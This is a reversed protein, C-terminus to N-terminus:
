KHGLSYDREFGPLSARNGCPRDGLTEHIGSTLNSCEDRGLNQYNVTIHRKRGGSESRAM